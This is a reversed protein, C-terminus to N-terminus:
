PRGTGAAPVGVAGVLGDAQLPQVARLLVGDVGEALRRLTHLVTARGAAAAEVELASQKTVNTVLMLTSKHRMRAAVATLHELSRVVQLHVHFLNM